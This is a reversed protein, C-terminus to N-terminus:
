DGWLLSSMYCTETVTNGKHNNAAANGESVQSLNNSITFKELSLKKM